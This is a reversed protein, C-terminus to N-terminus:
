FLFNSLLAQARFASSFIQMYCPLVFVIYAFTLTFFVSRFLGSPLGPHLHISLM